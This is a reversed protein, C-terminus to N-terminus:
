GRPAISRWPSDEEAPMFHKCISGVSAWWWGGIGFM